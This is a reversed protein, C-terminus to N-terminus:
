EAVEPFCRAEKCGMQGDMEGGDLFVRPLCQRGWPAGGSGACTCSSSVLVTPVGGCKEGVEPLGPEAAM